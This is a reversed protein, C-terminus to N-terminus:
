LIKLSVMFEDTDSQSDGYLGAAYGVSLTMDMRSLVTFRFDIQAGVDGVDERFQSSDTNTVLSTVFLSPRAWSLYFGPTGVREFRLPPLNWEFMGRYFNRGPVQNLEFGPLAYFERYRKVVGRDVYNNGFGGFYFNAFEDDIEGIAVGAANRFWISSHKWPLAFGFNFEGLFKPITDGDVHSAAAALRWSFGKEDDVHGLSSRLHSYNLETEFTTLKDVTAPVNQYRPLRDLNAFHNLEASFGLKKPEDYILTKDYGVLFRNGKM